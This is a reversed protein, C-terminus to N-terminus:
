LKNIYNSNNREKKQFKMFSRYWRSFGIFINQHYKIALSLFNFLEYIGIKFASYLYFMVSSQYSSLRHKRLFKNMRLVVKYRSKLFEIGRKNTISGKKVTAIYTSVPIASIKKAYYGVLMSFYADNSAIVEDFKINYKDILSHRIMKSCPSGFCLRLKYTDINGALYNDVLQSYYQGRNAKELSDSYVSDMKFYILDSESNILSFFLQVTNPPFFDDADAFIIWKGVAIELGKNRAGGAGKEYESYILKIYKDTNLDKLKIPNISNDVIIIEIRDNKDLSNILRRLTEISDRHPIILSISYNKM